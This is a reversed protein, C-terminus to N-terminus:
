TEYKEQLEAHILISFLLHMRQCVGADTVHHQHEGPPHRM